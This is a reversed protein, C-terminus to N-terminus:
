TLLTPTAADGGRAEELPLGNGNQRGRQNERGLIINGNASLSVGRNAACDFFPSARSGLAQRQACRNEM